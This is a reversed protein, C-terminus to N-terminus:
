DGGERVGVICYDDIMGQTEYHLLELATPLLEWRELSILLRAIQCLNDCTHLQELLIHTEEAKM